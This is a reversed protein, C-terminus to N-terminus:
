GACLRPCRGPRVHGKVVKTPAPAALKPATNRPRSRIRLPARPDNGASHAISPGLHGGLIRAISQQGLKRTSATHKKSHLVV